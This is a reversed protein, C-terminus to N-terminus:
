REARLLRSFEVPDEGTYGVPRRVAQALVEDLPLDPSLVGLVM